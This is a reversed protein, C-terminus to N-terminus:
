RMIRSNYCLHSGSPQVLLLVPVQLGRRAREAKTVSIVRAYLHRTRRWLLVSTCLAAAALGANILFVDRFCITGHCATGAQGTQRM